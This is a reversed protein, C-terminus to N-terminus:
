NEGYEDGLIQGEMVNEIKSFLKVKWILVWILLRHNVLNGERLVKVLVHPFQGFLM